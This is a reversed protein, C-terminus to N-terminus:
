LYGAIKGLEVTRDDHGMTKLIYGATEAVLTVHAFSHETFGLEGLSEDARVIYTQIASSNKVTEYTLMAAGGETHIIGCLSKRSFVSRCCKVFIKCNENEAHYVVHFLLNFGHTSSNSKM